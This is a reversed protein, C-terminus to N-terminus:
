CYLYATYIHIYISVQCKFLHTCVRPSQWPHGTTLITGALHPKLSSRARPLPASAQLPTCILLYIYIYAYIYVYICQIYWYCVILVLRCMYEYVYSLLVCVHLHQGLSLILEKLERMGKLRTQIEKVQKWGTHQRYMLTLLMLILVLIPTVLTNFYKM